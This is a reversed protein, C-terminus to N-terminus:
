KVEIVADKGPTEYIGLPKKDKDLIIWYHGEFTAQSVEAGAAVNSYHKRAGEYDIWFVQVQSARKNRIKITVPVDDEPSKLEKEKSPDIRPILGGATVGGSTACGTQVVALAALLTLAVGIRLM